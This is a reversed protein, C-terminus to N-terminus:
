AASKASGLCEREARELIRRLAKYGRHARVKVASTSLGLIRGVEAMSRQEFWHMTIVERQGVPLRDVAVRVWQITASRELMDVGHCDAPEVALHSEPRRLRKRFHERMLNFAITMLWPRLKREPQYDGRARHLHLFTQQVLDAVDDRRGIRRGLVGRLIEAYREFLRAFALEDGALYAVMLQEDTKNMLATVERTSQALPTVSM